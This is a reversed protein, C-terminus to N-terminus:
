LPYELAALVCRRLEDDMSLLSGLFHQNWFEYNPASLCLACRIAANEGSSGAMYSEEWLLERDILCRGNQDTAGMANLLATRKNVAAAGRVGVPGASRLNLTMKEYDPVKNLEARDTESLERAIFYDSQHLPGHERLWLKLGEEAQERNPYDTNEVRAESDTEAGYKAIHFKM